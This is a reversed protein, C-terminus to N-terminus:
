DTAGGRVKNEPFADFEKQAQEPTLQPLKKIEEYIQVIQGDFEKREKLTIPHYPTKGDSSLRGRMEKALKEARKELELAAPSAALHFILSQIAPLRKRFVEEEGELQREREAIREPRLGARENAAAVEAIFGEWIDVQAAFVTELSGLGRAGAVESERAAKAGAESGWRTVLDLHTDIKKLEEKQEPPARDIIERRKDPSGIKKFDDISVPESASIAPVALVLLLMNHVFKM